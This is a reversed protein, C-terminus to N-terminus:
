PSLTEKLFSDTKSFIDKTGSPSFLSDLILSVLTKGLLVELLSLLMHGDRIEEILDTM